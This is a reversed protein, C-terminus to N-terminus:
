PKGGERAGQAELDLMGRRRMDALVERVDREAEELDVDYEAAIRRSIEKMDRRGDLLEWVSTAVPNLVITTVEPVQVVIMAEGDAVRTLVEPHRSPREPLM